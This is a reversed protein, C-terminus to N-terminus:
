FYCCMPNELKHIPHFIELCYLQVVWTSVERMHLSRNQVSVMEHLILLEPELGLFQEHRVDIEHAKKHNIELPGM